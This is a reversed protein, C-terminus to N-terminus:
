RVKRGSEDTTEVVACLREIEACDKNSVGNTNRGIQAVVRAVAALLLRQNM